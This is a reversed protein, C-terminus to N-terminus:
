IERRLLRLSLSADLLVGTAMHPEASKRAQQARGKLDSLQGQARGM